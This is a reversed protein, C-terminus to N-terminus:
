SERMAPYSGLVKLFKSGKRLEEIADAVNKDEVHGEMDIFFIYEWAKTKLPRSEIKTLNVGHKSLPELMKYLIGPEDKVSFLISTKDRGSKKPLNKGIVLFRTVNNPNDEIKSEVIRLGYVSAAAEGAIAGVKEDESAMEAALATSAVDMVPIDSAYSSLWDRCQAIPQPHSYIKEVDEFRGTRNLLCHSVPLLIDGCISSDSEVFRDLTHTVMGENSNEVPIVGFDVKGREVDNFVDGISKKSVFEAASGFQRLSAMHTFTGDPGLFAVKLPQELALSASMIERFIVKLTNDPFPGENSSVIRELVEKERSPVYFERGELKKIKGVELALQARENLLSLIKMDIVDIGGRLDRLKKDSM